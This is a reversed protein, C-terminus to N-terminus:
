EKVGGVQRVGAGKRGLTTDGLEARCQEALSLLRQVVDAHQSAVNNREAADSRMHYLEAELASQKLYEGPWGDMGPKRGGLTRYGHPVILKWERTRVAELEAGSWSGFPVGYFFYAEHPNRANPESTFLRWLDRGDIKHDPLVAGIRSALTPLLDISCAMEECVSGAPIHGPWRAIFPVRTGGEWATTKGERLGNASGGHNGYVLWPGNDSLFLVITEKELGQKSLAALIEGTSWDIEAVADGYLGRKTTGRFRESVALPVHPMTHAVYLFFPRERNREIFSV